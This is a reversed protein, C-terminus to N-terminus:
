VVVVPNVHEPPVPAAGFTDERTRAPKLTLTGVSLRQAGTLTVIVTLADEMAGRTLALPEDAVTLTRSVSRRPLKRGNADWLYHVTRAVSAPQQLKAEVRGMSNYTWVTYNATDGM